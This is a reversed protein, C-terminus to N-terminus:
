KSTKYPHSENVFSNVFQRGNPNANNYVDSTTLPVRFSKTESKTVTPNLSDVFKNAGDNYPGPKGAVTFEDFPNM